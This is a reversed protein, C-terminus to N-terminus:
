QNNYIFGGIRRIVTEKGLVEMLEFIGPSATSGTLAIRIIHILQGPKINKEECFKRLSEDSKVADIEGTNKKFQEYYEMFVPKINETWHKATGKEDFQGPDTYFYKCSDYFDNIKEVRPKMLGIIKKLFMDGPLFINKKYLMEKVAELIYEESHNKIYEFNLWNLKKNDFVSSKKNVRDFSFLKILEDRALIEKNEPPAFGLLTLFNFLAEALYGQEKYEEVAVTNRRKSLKKKKEDLIMPLHAFVPIAWGLANYLMIQKPTNSLHDDGRIINTIQMDHDDCVVAIQYTSSGDSRLIVFDEIESNNFSTKGHVLDDFETFGEPVKFRLTYPKDENLFRNVDDATYKLSARDYNYPINNAEADKRKRDLEEATEFAYYAKGTKVLINSIEKYRSIHDSQYVVPEDHDMGLWHMTRIIQESLESKSREPDTDEIRLLFSGGQNKAFLWNFIATRAGGVHLFGTPSPAFRVRIPM